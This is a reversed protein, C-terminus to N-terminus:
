RTAGPLPAGTNLLRIPIYIFEIAKEPKIAVDIWLQNADIRAPTNNSTDCVVAYDYLARLGLLNGFFANFTSLVSDRTQKDNPEFLFVKAVNDLQYKIYNILRAVNVRDLATTTPSLTKQGYIVLGRNPIYAIPNISHTYLVDRQGQNLAVTKYEGISNLYGVSNVGTVLGRNFGAPAFWPYSVQDNFAITRLAMMSPPALVYSGDLNTSLAWPYWIGTYDDHTVLGADGNDYANAANNAWNVISTGTPVLHSPTDGVVFAIQKKDANLTVMEEICEPYGPTAILNFYITEARVDQNAQLAAKLSKVVMIRQAASGMYPTFDSPTNGSVTVWRGRNAVPGTTIYNANWQKVNNTSYRTNFLLMGAPHLEANPADDDVHDSIALASATTKGTGDDQRADAFIIGASTVHDTNDVQVWSGGNGAVYRSIVPYTSASSDLWLDYDALPTGTSQKTPASGSIIIGNPDTGPYVTYYGKWQIGDGVMVDALLNTNFWLTGDAPRGQPAVIDPTYLFDTSADVGGPLWSSGNWLYLEATAEQPAADDPNYMMFMSGSNKRAGFSADANDTSSFWPITGTNPVTNQTVWTGNVYQKVKISSGRNQSTTNIWISNAALQSPLSPVTYTGAGTVSANYYDKFFTTRGYKNGLDFGANALPAGAVDKITIYTGNRSFKLGTGADVPASSAITVNGFATNIASVVNGLDHHTPIIVNIPGGGIDVSFIDNTNFTPAANTGTVSSFFRQGTDINVTSWIGPIVVNGNGDTTADGVLKITTGDYNTIRLQSNTGNTYVDANANFGATKFEANINSVFAVLDAKPYVTVSTGGITITASIANVNMVPTKSGGGVVVVPESAQWSWGAFVNGSTTGYKVPTTDKTGVAFWWDAVANGAVPDVTTVTVKEWIRNKYKTDTVSVTDVILDGAMGVSRLPSAVNVPDLSLGLATLLGGDTGPTGQAFNIITDIDSSKLRLNYVAVVKNSGGGLTENHSFIEASIGLLKLSENSNITNVVGLLTASSFTLPVSNINLVGTFSNTSVDTIKTAAYGQVVNELLMPDTIVMPAVASWAFAPNQDGTSTFTGWTSASTDLWYTGNKPLGTPETSSPELQALDIDARIVYANNAIGLFEYLSFLGLENLENDYQPTGGVSYFNPSGYGQLVDRQSTILQLQGAAAATTYQAVSSTGTQLKDQATAIVILPVTGTPSNAYFSENTVTVSVGPSVLDPM